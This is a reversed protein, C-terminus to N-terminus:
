GVSPPKGIAECRKHRGEDLDGVIGCVALREATEHMRYDPGGAFGPAQTLGLLAYYLCRGELPWSHTPWSCQQSM